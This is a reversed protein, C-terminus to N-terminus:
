PIPPLELMVEADMIHSVTMEHITPAAGPVVLRVQLRGTHTREHCFGFRGDRRTLGRAIMTENPAGLNEGLEWTVGPVPKRARQVRVSIWFDNMNANCARRLFEAPSPAVLRLDANRGPELNFRLPTGIVINRASTASDIVEVAYPGPLLQTFEAVGRADVTSEFDTNALRLVSRTSPRHDEDVVTIRVRGLEASWRKGDPWTVHAVQGGTEHMDYWERRLGFEANGTAFSPRPDVTRLSWFDIMVAGNPMETFSIRGGPRVRKSASPVGVYTFEVGKIVRAATDIWLTGEVDIRKEPRRGAASFGLGLERPRRRDRDVRFCYGSVFRQDLLVDADPGLYRRRIGRDIVFGQEVFSAADREAAFSTTAMTESTRVSQSKIREFEGESTRAFAYSRFSGPNGERSVITAVLGTRALEYLALAEGHDARRPCRQSAQATVPALLAAVPALEIELRVSGTGDAMPVVRPAFGMRIVRVSRLYTLRRLRFEGSENTLTRAITAGSSDQLFVVAGAVPHRTVSDRVAGSVDQAAAVPALLLAAAAARCFAARM